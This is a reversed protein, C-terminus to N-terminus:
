NHPKATKGQQISFLQVKRNDNPNPYAAKTAEELVRSNSNARNVYTTQMGLIQRLGKMRFVDILKAIAETLHLTELGYLLKSRLFPTTYSLNASRAQM